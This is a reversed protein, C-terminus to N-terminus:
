ISAMSKPTKHLNGERFRSIREEPSGLSGQSIQHWFNESINNQECSASNDEIRERKVNEKHEKMKTASTKPDDDKASEAKKGTSTSNNDQPSQEIGEQVIDWLDQSIFITEMQAKWYEYLEGDFIPIQNPSNAFMSSSSPAAM